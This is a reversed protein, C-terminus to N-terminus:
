SAGREISAVNYGASLVAEEVAADDMEGDETLVIAVTKDTLDIAVDEVNEDRRLVKTLSRACFDCVMGHVQATITRGVAPTAKAAEDDNAADASGEDHGHGHDHDGAHDHKQAHQEESHEPMAHGAHDQAFAPASFALTLAALTALSTTTKM